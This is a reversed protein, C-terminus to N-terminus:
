KSHNPLVLEHKKYDKTLIFNFTWISFEDKPAKYIYTKITPKDVKDSTYVKTLNVAGFKDSVAKSKGSSDGEYIYTGGVLVANSDELFVREAKMYQYTSVMLLLAVCVLSSMIAVSVWDVVSVKEHTKNSKRPLVIIFFIVIAIALLYIM